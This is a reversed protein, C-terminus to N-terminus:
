VTIHFDKDRLETETKTIGHTHILKGNFADDPNKCSVNENLAEKFLKSVYRKNNHYWEEYILYTIVLM